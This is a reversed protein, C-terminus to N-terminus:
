YLERYHATSSLVRRVDARTERFTVKTLYEEPEDSFCYSKWVAAQEKGASYAALAVHSAGGFDRGLLGLHAAGLAISTEPDYLDDVGLGNAGIRPALRRATDLNLRALGRASTPSLSYRDYHSAERILAALVAAEVGHRQAQAGIVKQYPNPYLLRRLEQPVLGPPLSAPARAHLGEALELSARIEGAQALMLSGTYALSPNTPPFFRPVATAGDDFLGLALLVEDPRTPNRSWVPWDRIPVRSLRLFPSAAPDALLHTLLKRRATRGAPSASGLLLWADYLEGPLASAALQTGRGLAFRSLPLEKLRAAAAVAHPHYPDTRLLSLYSAVAGRGDDALEALRGRWYFAELRAEQGGVQARDLWARARDARGRVIDSAALFLAARTAHDSWLRQGSLPAFLELASAEAGARWEIRLSSLLAVPAWEGEPEARYALRFSAAALGNQGLLEYCRGQHYLAEARQVAAEARQAVEGFTVAAQRYAGAALQARAQTLRAEFADRSQAPRSFALRLHAQARELERHQFFTKGVLLRLRGRESDAIRVSLLEAAARAPEDDHREELLGILLSRGMEIMGLRMACDGQALLLERRAAAPLAEMRIARLLRCDGGRRLTEALLRAAAPLLPSSPDGAVVTAVLGAAVEPHSNREQELALRYRSHGVLPPTVAMAAAYAQLAQEPSGLKELLRGRLYDLGFRRAQEPQVALEADVRALAERTNGALQLEVLQPRPDAVAVAAVLAFTGLM